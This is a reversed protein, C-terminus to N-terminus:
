VGYKKRYALFSAHSENDVYVKGEINRGKLHEFIDAITTIAMVPIGTEESFEAVASSRRGREMRDVAIVIGAVEAKLGKQLKSIAELKTEGTTMVDDVMIVRAGHDVSGVFVSVDGYTKKEKRDFLWSKNIGFDKSLAVSACVALPIGKYAPGFVADFQDGFSDKIKQAYHRGLEYSAAGTSLDGTSIFYPSERGSKLVFDGFKVAGTRALFEIFATNVL